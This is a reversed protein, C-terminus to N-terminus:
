GNGASGRIAELGDLIPMMLDLLIVDPQLTQALTIAEQGNTAQGVVRMDAQRGIVSALGERVIAHDDAILIRFPAETTKM